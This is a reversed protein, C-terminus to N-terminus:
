FTVVDDSEGDKRLHCRSCIFEGRKLAEIEAELMAIWEEQLRMVDRSLERNEQLAQTVPDAM